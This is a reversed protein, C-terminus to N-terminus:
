FILNYKQKYQQQQPQQNRQAAQAALRKRIAPDYIHEKELSDLSKKLRSIVAKLHIIEDTTKNKDDILAMNLKIGDRKQQRLTIIKAKLKRVNEKLEMIKNSQQELVYKNDNSCTQMDEIERKQDTYNKVLQRLFTSGETM